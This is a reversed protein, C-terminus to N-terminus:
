RGIRRLIEQAVTNKDIEKCCLANDGRPCERRLCPAMKCPSQVIYHRGAPGYPGTLTADTSGFNAICPVGLLAAIHMPGSDNTFLAKSQQLLAVLAGMSTKGALNAIPHACSDSEGCFFAKRVEEARACEAGPAGLLWIGVDPRTAAVLRLVSAFYEEPWSKSQWRSSCGVALLPRGSLGAERLVASAEAQWAAPLQLRVDACEESMVIGHDRLFERVLLLNKEVAHRVADPIGVKRTYFLPAGERANAFGYREDARACKSILASRLLGQFDLVADYKEERLRTLFERLARVSCHGLAKRPFPIVRIGPCIAVTDALADNAVWDVAVEPLARRLQEVAFLAHVIDGLSSPKVILIREM